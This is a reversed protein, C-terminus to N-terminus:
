NQLYSTKQSKHKGNNNHLYVILDIQSTKDQANVSNACNGGAPCVTFTKGPCGGGIDM